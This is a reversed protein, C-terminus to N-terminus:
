DDVIAAIPDVSVAGGPSIVAAVTLVGPITNRCYTHYYNVQVSYLTCLRNSFARRNQVTHVHTCLVESDSM